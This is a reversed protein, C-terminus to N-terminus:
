LRRLFEEVAALFKEPQEDHIGHGAGPFQVVELQKVRERALAADRDSLAAGNAPDAQMLLVPCAIAGLIPILDMGANILGWQIVFKLFAPDLRHIDNAVIKDVEPPLDPMMKMVEAHVDEWNRARQKLAALMTFFQIPGQVDVEGDERFISLPPDEAVVGQLHQAGVPDAAALLAVVAGLSHGVLVAPAAARERLFAVIDATLRTLHYGHPGEARSSLNHGRLDLLFVRRHEALRPALRLWTAHSSTAGHLFVLPPGSAPGELVHLRVEGTDFTTETWTM